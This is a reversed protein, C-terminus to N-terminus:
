AAKLAGQARIMADRRRENPGVMAMGAQVDRRIRHGGLVLEVRGAMAILRRTERRAVATSLAPLWLLFRDGDLRMLRSEGELAGAIRAEIAALLADAADMGHDSNVGGMDEVDLIALGGPRFRRAPILEHARTRHQVPGGTRAEGPAQGPGLIGHFRGVPTYDSM